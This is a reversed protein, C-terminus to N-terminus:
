NHEYDPDESAEFDGHAPRYTRFFASGRKVGDPGTFDLYGFFFLTKSGSAVASWNEATIQSAPFYIFVRESAGLDPKNRPQRDILTSIDIGDSGYPPLSERMVRSAEDPFLALVNFQGRIDSASLQGVNAIVMNVGNDKENFRIQERRVVLRPRHVYQFEDRATNAAQQSIALSQLTEREQRESTREAERVLRRTEDVLRWTVFALIGTLGVLFWEGVSGWEPPDGDHPKASKHTEAKKAALSRVSYLNSGVFPASAGNDPPKNHDAKAADPQLGSPIM